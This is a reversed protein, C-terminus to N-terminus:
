EDPRWRLQIEATNKRITGAVTPGSKGAPALSADFMDWRGNQVGLWRGLAEGLLEGHAWRAERRLPSLSQSAAAFPNQRGAALRLSVVPEEASAATAFLLLAAVLIARM